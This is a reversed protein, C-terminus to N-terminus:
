QERMWGMMVRVWGMVLMKLAQERQGQSWDKVCM